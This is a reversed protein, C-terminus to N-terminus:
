IVYPQLEVPQKGDVARLSFLLLGLGATGAILGVIANVRREPLTLQWAAMSFGLTIFLLCIIDHLRQLRTLQKREERVQKVEEFCRDLWILLALIGYVFIIFYFIGVASTPFVPMLYNFLFSSFGISLFLLIGDRAVRQLNSKVSILSFIAFIATSIMLNELLVEPISLSARLPLYGQIGNFFTPGFIFLAVYVRLRNSTAKEGRLLLTSVLLCNCALTPLILQWFLVPLGFAGLKRKVSIVARLNNPFSMSFSFKNDFTSYIRELFLKKPGELFASSKLADVEINSMNFPGPLVDALEFTLEYEEFPAYEGRGLEGGLTWKIMGSSGTFRGNDVSECSIRKSDGQGVIIASVPEGLNLGPIFLDSFTLTINVEATGDSLNVDHVLIDFEVKPTKSTQSDAMVALCSPVLVSLTLIIMVNFKRILAVSWGYIVRVFM